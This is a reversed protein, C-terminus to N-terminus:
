RNNSAKEHFLLLLVFVSIQKILVYSLCNVIGLAIRVRLVCLCLREEAARLPVKLQQPLIAFSFSQFLIKEYCAYLILVYNFWILM